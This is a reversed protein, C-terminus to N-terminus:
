GLQISLLVKVLLLTGIDGASPSAFDLVFNKFHLTVKDQDPSTIEALDLIKGEYVVKKKGMKTRRIFYIRYNGIVLLRDKITEKGRDEVVISTGWQIYLPQTRTGFLEDVFESSFPYISLSLSFSYILSPIPM